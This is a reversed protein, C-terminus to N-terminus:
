YNHVIWSNILTSLCLPVNPSLVSSLHKSKKELLIMFAMKLNWTRVSSYIESDPFMSNKEKKKFILNGGTHAPETNETDSPSDTKSLVTRM